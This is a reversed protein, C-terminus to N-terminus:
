AKNAITLLADHINFLAILFEFLMRWVLELLLFTVVFVSGAVMKLSRAYPMRNLWGNVSDIGSAGAEHSRIWSVLWATFLSALVPVVFAGLWYLLVMIYPTVFFKLTLFDFITQM